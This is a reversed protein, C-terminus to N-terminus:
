LKIAAAYLPYREGATYLIMKIRFDPDVVEICNMVGDSNTTSNKSLEHYDIFVSGIRDAIAAFEPRSPRITGIIRYPTEKLDKKKHENTANLLDM